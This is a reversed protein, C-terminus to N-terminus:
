KGGPMGGGSPMQGGSPMGGQQGSNTNQSSTVAASSAGSTSTDKLQTEDSTVKSAIYVTDGESLGSKIEIDTGNSFGTEVPVLTYTDGSKEYVYSKDNQTVIAQESVQLVDSVSDTVFTVDATM